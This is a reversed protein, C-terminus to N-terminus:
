FNLILSSSAKANSVRKFPHLFNFSCDFKQRILNAIVSDNVNTMLTLGVPLALRGMKVKNFEWTATFDNGSAYQGLM